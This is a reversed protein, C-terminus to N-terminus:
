GIVEIDTKTSLNLGDDCTTGETLGQCQTVGNFLVRGLKDCSLEPVKFQRVRARGSPLKGFDFLTLRDVQGASDFLVTEFVVSEIAEKHANTVFFSILCSSQDTQAANLEISLKGQASDQAALPLALAGSVLTSLTLLRIM